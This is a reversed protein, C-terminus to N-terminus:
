EAGRYKYHGKFIDREAVDSATVLLENQDIKPAEGFKKRELKNLILAMSAERMLENSIKVISGSFFGTVLLKRVGNEDIGKSMMYFVSEPDIPATASSHTAKVDNESVSMDPLGVVKAGRDLLIGREHVYSRAKNAGKLVKAYGKLICFSTDMLAAKSDLSANTDKGENIIFTNVDFKQASSGFVIENVDVNSKLGNADVYNRVRTNSGGNYVSNFRLHSGEGSKNKLFGLVVTNENENHLANIEVQADKELTAEHIVGLSSVTKSSSQYLEFLNLKAGEGLEILVETNLPMGSNVFLLNIQATQGKPVKINIVKSSYGHIYAVYKDENSDHLRM